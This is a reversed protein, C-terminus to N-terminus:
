RSRPGTDDVLCSSIITSVAALPVTFLIVVSIPFDCRHNTVNSIYYVLLGLSSFSRQFSQIFTNSFSFHM